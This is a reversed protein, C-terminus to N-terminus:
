CYVCHVSSQFGHLHFRDSVCVLGIVAKMVIVKPDFHYFKFSIFPQPIRFALGEDSWM